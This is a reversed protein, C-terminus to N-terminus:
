TEDSKITYIPNHVKRLSSFINRLCDGVLDDYSHNNDGLKPGYLIMQYFNKNEHHLLRYVFRDEDQINRVEIFLTSRIKNEMDM